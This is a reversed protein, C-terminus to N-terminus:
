FFFPKWQIQFKLTTRNPSSTLDYGSGITNRDAYHLRKVWFWIRLSRIPHLRLMAVLASGHGYCVPFSMDYLLEPQRAYTRAAYSDTRFLAASLALSVSEAPSLFKATQCLLLGHHSSSITDISASTFEAISNISAAHGFSRSFLLKSSSKVNQWSLGRLTPGDADIQSSYTDAKSSRRFQFRLNTRRNFAYDAILRVSWGDSPTWTSSSLWLFRWVDAVARLSLHGVPSSTASLTVGSEGISASSHSLPNQASKFFRRSIHHLCFSIKNFDHLDADAGLSLAWADRGQFAAEGFAMVSRFYRRFDAHFTSIRNADPTFIRSPSGNPSLPLQSHWSNFGVGISWFDPAFRAYAGFLSVQDNHRYSRETPTRHLGSTRLTSIALSSDSRFFTTADADVSSAFLTLRLPWWRLESALGRLYGSESASLTPSLGSPNRATSVGSLTPAFGFGTWLGLGQGLQLRYNGAVLKYLHSSKNAYALYASSFDALKEGPDTEVVGGFSWHEGLNISGRLLSGVPRGVFTSDYGRALPWSRRLRCLIDARLFRRQRNQPPSITTFANIRLIDGFSLGRITM